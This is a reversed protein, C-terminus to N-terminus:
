PPQSLNKAPAAISSTKENRCPATDVMRVPEGSLYLRERGPDLSLQGASDYTKFTTRQGTEVQDIPRYDSLSVIQLAGSNDLVYLRDSEPDALADTVHKRYEPADYTSFRTPDLGGVITNARVAVDPRSSFKIFEM